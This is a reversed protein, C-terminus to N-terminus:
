KGKIRGIIWLVFQFDIIFQGHLFANRDFLGHIVQIDHDTTGIFLAKNTEIVEKLDFRLAKNVKLYPINGTSTWGYITALPINFIESLEDITILKLTQETMIIAGKDITKITEEM